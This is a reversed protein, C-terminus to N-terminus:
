LTGKCYPCEQGPHNIPLRAGCRPCTREKGSRGEAPHPMEQVYNRPKETANSPGLFGASSALSAIEMNRLTNEIIAIFRPCATGLFSEEFTHKLLRAFLGIAAPMSLIHKIRVTLFGGTAEFSFELLSGVTWSTPRGNMTPYVDARFRAVYGEQPAIVEYHPGRTRANIENLASLERPLAEAFAEMFVEMNAPNHQLIAEHKFTIDM